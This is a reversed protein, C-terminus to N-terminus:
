RRRLERLWTALAVREECRAGDMCVHGNLFPRMPATVYARCRLCRRIM